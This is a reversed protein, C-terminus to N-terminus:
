IFMHLNIPGLMLLIFRFYWFCQVDTNRYGVIRGGTINNSPLFDFPCDLGQVANFCPIDITDDNLVDQIPHREEVHSSLYIDSCTTEITMMKAENYAKYKVM